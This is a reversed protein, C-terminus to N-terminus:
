PAVGALPAAAGRAASYIYDALRLAAQPVGKFGPFPNIDVVYPRGGSLIIDLGFLEMGFARACRLVIQRLEPTVSFPEGLKDAYSRVPWVRKVGFVQGGICYLKRDRGAPELYRQAFVPGDSGGVDHLEDADWVVQVGRGRSGRHPKVVLPGADLLPALQAPHVSLYTEPIPVEAAQLIRTAVIKDRCRATIPYPNLITAGLADLAGALSLALETGSKLVYIDHDVGVRSLDILQEEPHILGAEVGWQELLGIVEPMIPSVRSRPHSLMIFAVRM